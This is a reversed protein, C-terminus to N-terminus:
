LAATWSRYPASTRELVPAAIAGLIWVSLFTLQFSAGLLSKPDEAMVVLAAAGVANLM